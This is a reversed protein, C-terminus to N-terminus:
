VLREALSFFIKKMEPSFFDKQHPVVGLVPVGGLAEIVPLNTRESLGKRTAHAYNLIVGALAIGRSKAAAVTLLTHNITGLGPRAVIVIPLGLDKILDLFLYRRYVPVMIGGAGEVVVIDYRESLDRCASLIKQKQIVVGELGAAVSPALPHQLRYPNISEVPENVGSARILQRTDKAILKTHRIICGTEVPKVPCVSYGM